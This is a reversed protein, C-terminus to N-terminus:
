RDNILQTIFNHWELARASWTQMKAWEYATKVSKSKLEASSMKLLEIALHFVTENYELKIGSHVTEKLGAVNTTVPLVKAYQMELATICYTEEYQTLYPWYEAELMARHLTDQSVNGHSKVGHSRLADLKDAIHELQNLAYSPTFIDLTAGPINYRINPWYNLLEELGREPASSWIFSNKKKRPEGNFSSTDIGNGIIKIKDPTISYSELWKAKHWETLCIFTDYLDLYQESHELEEGKYWRHYDTNHAWFIKDATYDKFELAGHIYNVVVIVDFFDNSYNEHLEETELWLVGGSHEYEVQGSIFVRNGYNALNYAIHSTAIESGGLGLGSDIIERNFPKAQYGVYFLINM